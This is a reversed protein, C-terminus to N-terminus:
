LTRAWDTLERICSKYNEHDEVVTENSKNNTGISLEHAYPSSKVCEHLVGTLPEQLLLDKAKNIM